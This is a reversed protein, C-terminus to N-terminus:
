SAAGATERDPDVENMMPQFRQKILPEWKKFAGPAGGVDIM